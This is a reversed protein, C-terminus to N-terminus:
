EGVDFHRTERSREPVEFDVPDDGERGRYKALYAARRDVITLSEERCPEIRVLPKGRKTVTLPEGSAAVAECVESLKTKAEFIGIRKMTMM